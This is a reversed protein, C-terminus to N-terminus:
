WKLCHSQEDQVHLSRTCIRLDRGRRARKSQLWSEPSCYSSRQDWLLSLQQGAEALAGPEAVQVPAACPSTLIPPFDTIQWSRKATLTGVCVDHGLVCTTDWPKPVRM